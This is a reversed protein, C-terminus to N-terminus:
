VGETKKEIIGKELIVDDKFWYGSKVVAPSGAEIMEGDMTTYRKYTDGDVVIEVTDDRCVGTSLVFDLLENLRATGTEKDWESSDPFRSDWMQRYYPADKLNATRAAWDGVVGPRYKSIGKAMMYLPEYLGSFASACAGFEERSKEEAMKEAKARLGRKYLWYGTVAAAGLVVAGGAIILGIKTM